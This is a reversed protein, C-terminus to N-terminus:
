KWKFGGQAGTKTQKKSCGLPLLHLVTRVQVPNGKQNSIFSWLISLKITKVSLYTKLFLGHDTNLFDLLGLIDTDLCRIVSGVLWAAHCPQWVRRPVNVILVVSGPTSFETDEGTAALSGKWIPSIPTVLLYCRRPAVCQHSTLAKKLLCCFAEIYNLPLQILCHRFARTVTCDSPFMLLNFLFTHGKEKVEMDFVFLSVPILFMATDCRDLWVKYQLICYGEQMWLVLPILAQINWVKFTVIFCVKGKSRSWTQFSELFVKNLNNTVCELVWLWQLAVLLNKLLM